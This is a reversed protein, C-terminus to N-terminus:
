FVGTRPPEPDMTFVSADFCRKMLEARLGAHEPEYWLNTFEQPDERLGYLEGEESATLCCPGSPTCVPSQSYANTFAVGESVLRDLNRTRIHPNGLAAITDYRQQDTCIWLLNPRSPM